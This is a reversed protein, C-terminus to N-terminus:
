PATQYIQRLVLAQIDNRGKTGQFVNPQGDRGEAAATPHASHSLSLPGNKVWFELLLKFWETKHSNFIQIHM